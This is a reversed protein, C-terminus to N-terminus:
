SLDRVASFFDQLARLDKKRPNGKLEVGSCVDVVAPQVIKIARRVNQATLGGSLILNKVRPRVQPLIQWDFTEGTGGFQERVFTDFVIGELELFANLEALSHESDVRLARWVRPFKRCFKLSETGHFQLIDLPCTTLLKKIRASDENVFIGVTQVRPFEEKLASVLTTGELFELFRKSGPFFNFGLFDAGLRAASRADELKTLGCIKIKM